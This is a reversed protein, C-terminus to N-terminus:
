RIYNKLKLIACVESMEEPTKVFEHAKDLADKSAKMAMPKFLNELVESPLAKLAQAVMDYNAELVKADFKLSSFDPTLLEKAAKKGWKDKIIAEDEASLAASGTSAVWTVQSEEGIIKFSGGQGNMIRESYNKKAYVVIEVKHAAALSEYHKAQDQYERFSDINKAIKKPAILSATDAKAAKSKQVKFPSTKTLQLAM